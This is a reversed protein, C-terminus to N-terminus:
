FELWQRRLQEFRGDRKMRELEGQWRAVVKDPVNRSFSLYSLAPAVRYVQELADAGAGARRLLDPVQLEDIAMLPARGQLLMNMATLPTESVLLNTFGERQLLMHSYYNRPLLVGAARRADELGNLHIGSGRLAYFSTRSELLPGVWKFLAERETTRKPCILVVDPEELGIQYARTWPMLEIDAQDGLSKQITKVVEVCFGTVQGGQRFALPPVETTLLRLDGAPSAQSWALTLGLLIARIM